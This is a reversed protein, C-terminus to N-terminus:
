NPNQQDKLADLNLALEARDSWWWTLQDDEVRRALWGAECLEHADRIAEDEVVQGKGERALLWANFLIERKRQNLEM